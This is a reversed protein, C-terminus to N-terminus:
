EDAIPSLQDENLLDPPTFEDFTVGDYDRLNNPDSPNSGLEDQSEEQSDFTECRGWM